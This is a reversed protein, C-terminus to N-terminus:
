VFNSYNDLFSSFCVDILRVEDCNPIVQGDRLWTVNPVPDGTIQVTWKLREGEAVEESILRRVFDPAVTKAIFILIYPIKLNFYDSLELRHSWSM